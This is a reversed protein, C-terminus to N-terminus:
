FCAMSDTASYTKVISANYSLTTPNAEPALGVVKFNVVVAGALLKSIVSTLHVCCAL